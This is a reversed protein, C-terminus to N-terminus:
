VKTNVIKQKIEHLEISNILYLLTDFSQSM